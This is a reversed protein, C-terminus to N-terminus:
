QGIGVRRQVGANLAVRNDLCRLNRCYENKKNRESDFERGGLRSSNEIVQALIRMALQPNLQGTTILDDLSDTLALGLSCRRYLEYYQTTASM